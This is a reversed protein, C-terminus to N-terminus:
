APCDAQCSYWADSAAAGRAHRSRGYAALIQSAIRLAEDRTKLGLIEIQFISQSGGGKSTAVEASGVVDGLWQRVPELVPEKRESVSSAPSADPKASEPKPAEAEDNDESIIRRISALIEEMTPEGQSNDHDTMSVMEGHWGKGVERENLRRWRPGFFWLHM